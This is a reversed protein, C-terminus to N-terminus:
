NTIILSSNQNTPTAFPLMQYLPLLLPIHLHTIMMLTAQSILVCFNRFNQNLHLFLLVFTLLLYDTGFDLFDVFIFIIPYIQLLLMHMTSSNSVQVPDPQYLVVFCLNMSTSIIQLSNTPNLLSFLIM